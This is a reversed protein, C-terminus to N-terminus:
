KIVKRSLIRSAAGRVDEGKKERGCRERDYAEREIMMMRNVDKNRKERKEFGKM